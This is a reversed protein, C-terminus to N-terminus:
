DDVMLSAVRTQENPEFHQSMLDRIAAQKDSDALGPYDLIARRESAFNDLRQQWQQRQHDLSELRGTAEPGVLSMRLRRVEGPGAGEAQLAATQASLTQHLQPVLLDQMDDPLEQRLAEILRSKEDEALTEDRLIAMREMTFSNYVEESAFFAAHAERSFLSARLRQVAEERRQIADLDAIVPFENELEAVAAKYDIYNQLLAEAQALAPEPLRTALYARIRHAAEGFSVEGVTSFFYDFLNRIQGTIVLNGQTDTELTGDIDTGRLSPPEATVAASPASVTSRTPLPSVQADAPAAPARVLSEAQPTVGDPSILYWGLLLTSALFPIYVLAKM